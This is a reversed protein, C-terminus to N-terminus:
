DHQANPLAPPKGISGEVVEEFVTGGPPIKRRLVKTDSTAVSPLTIEFTSGNRSRLMAPTFHNCNTLAVVLDVDHSKGISIWGGSGKM